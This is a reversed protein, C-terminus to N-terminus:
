TAAGALGRATVYALRGAPDRHPPAEPRGAGGATSPHLAIQLHHLFPPNLLGKVLAVVGVTIGGAAVAEGLRRYQRVMVLRIALAIPLILLAVGGAWGILHLLAAPLRRSAGVVDFEVGTATASALLAVGALIAIELVATVSRVLDAPIRVRPELHDEVVLQQDGAPAKAANSARTLAAMVAPRLPKRRSKM